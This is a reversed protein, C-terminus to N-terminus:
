WDAAFGRTDIHTFDGYRGVGGAFVGRTRLERAVMAVERPRARFRLDLAMNRLHYSNGVAGPCQANYEPSRYASVVEKVPEGLEEALRDAVRLVWRVKRWLERPPLTNRVGGRIKYHSGVVQEVGVHRLRLGALFNGYRVVDEGWVEVWERPAEWEGRGGGGWLIRELLGMSAGRAEGGVLMGGFILMGIRFFDRRPLGVGQVRALEREVRKIM